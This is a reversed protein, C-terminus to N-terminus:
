PFRDTHTPIRYVNISLKGNDRSVLTELFSIQYNKEHEITFSIHPDISNLSHHCSSVANKKMICFSDDVYRKWYRPPVPTANIASDEIVEMCINAVVPSVPSGMACGHIQKYIKDKYVFYNNSLGFNLLSVIDDIDLNTRSNGALLNLSLDLSPVGGAIRPEM